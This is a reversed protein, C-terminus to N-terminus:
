GRAAPAREPGLRHTAHGLDLGLHRHRLHEAVRGVQPRQGAALAFVRELEQAVLLNGRVQRLLDDLLRAFLLLDSGLEAVTTARRGRRQTAAAPRRYGANEMARLLSM